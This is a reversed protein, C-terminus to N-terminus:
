SGVPGPPSCPDRAAWWLREIGWQRLGSLHPMELRCVQPPITPMGRCLIEEPLFKEKRREKMWEVFMVQAKVANWYSYIFGNRICFFALFEVYLIYAFSPPFSVEKLSSKLSRLATKWPAYTKDASSDSSRGWTWEESGLHKCQTKYCFLLM